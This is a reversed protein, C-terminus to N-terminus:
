DNVYFNIDSTPDNTTHIAVYNTFEKLRIYAKLSAGNLDFPAAATLENATIYQSIKDYTTSLVAFSSIAFSYELYRSFLM